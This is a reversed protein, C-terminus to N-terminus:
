PGARGFRGRWVHVGLALAGGIGLVWHALSAAARSDEGAFYYLALGTAALALMVAALVSGSRRNRRGLWGLRVHVPLLAGAAILFAYAAVGHAKLLWPEAPHPQAGFEGQVEVFHHLWLWGLGTALLSGSTLYILREHMKPLRQTFHPRRRM